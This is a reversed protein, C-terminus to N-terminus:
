FIRRGPVVINSSFRSAQEDARHNDGLKGGYLLPQGCGKCRFEKFAGHPGVYKMLDKRCFPCPASYTEGSKVIFFNKLDM